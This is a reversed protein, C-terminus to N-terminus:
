VGVMVQFIGWRVPHQDRQETSRLMQLQTEWLAKTPEGGKRLREHLAVSFRFSWEDEIKWLSGIVVPVGARLFDGSIGLSRSRLRADGLASDCAALVAVEIGNLSAESLEAQHPQDGPLAFSLSFSNALEAITHTALHLVESGRAEVLIASLTAQDGELVRGRPYLSAVMRAEREASRLGPLIGGFHSVAVALARTPQKFSKAEGSNQAYLASSPSIVVQHTEILFHEKGPVILASFPVRALLKDPVIILRKMAPLFPLVPGLLSQGLTRLEQTARDHSGQLSRGLRALREELETATLPLFALTIEGRTVVWVATGENFSGFEVIAEDKDLREQLEEISPVASAALSWNGLASLRAREMLEFSSTPAQRDLAMLIIQDFIDQKLEAYNNQRGLPLTTEIRALESLAEELDGAAQKLDNTQRQASAKEQLLKVLGVRYKTGRYYDLASSLLSAALRPDKDSLVEAKVAALDIAIRERFIPDTIKAAIIQAREIDDLAADFSGLRKRVLAMQGLTEALVGKNSSPKLRASLEELFELAAEPAGEELAAMASHRLVTYVRREDGLADLSGLADLRYKWGAERDGLRNLDSALLAKMFGLHGGERALRFYGAAESHDSLAGLTDGIVFKVVGRMWTTRAFLTLYRGPYAGAVAHEFSALSRHFQQQYYETIARNVIVLRWLPSGTGQLHVSAAEFAWSAIEYQDARLALLGKRFSQSGKVIKTLEESSASRISYVVELLLRDGTEHILTTGIIKAAELLNSARSEDGVLVAEAWLGLLEEEALLRLIQPSQRVHESIESESWRLLETIIPIGSPAARGEIRALHSKAENIWSESVEHEIFEKWQVAARRHLHLKELALAQNFRAALSLPQRSLAQTSAELSLVLDIPNGAQVARASYGVALDSLIRPSEEQESIKSELLEVSQHFNGDFLLLIARTRTCEESTDNCRNAADRMAIRASEELPEVRHRSRYPFYRVGVLRGESPRFGGLQDYLGQLM